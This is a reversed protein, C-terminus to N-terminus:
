ALIQLKFSCQKSGRLMSTLLSGDVPKGTIRGFVEKQWGLSCLCQTGSTTGPKVQPCPCKEFRYAITLKGTKEDYDAKDLMGNPGQMDKLYASLNGKYKSLTQDWQAQLFGRACERGCNEMVKNRAPEDVNQELIRLMNAHRVQAADLRGKLQGVEQNDSGSQAVAPIASLAVMSGAGM